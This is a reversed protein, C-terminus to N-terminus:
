QADILQFTPALLLNCRECKGIDSVPEEDFMVFKRCPTKSFTEGLMIYHRCSTNQTEAIMIANGSGFRWVRALEM